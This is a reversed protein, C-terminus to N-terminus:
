EEIRLEATVIAHDSGANKAEEYLYSISEVRIAPTHYIFDYRCETRKRKNGRVHSIALPGTPRAATIRAFEDPRDQLYSRLADSLHHVRNAGLLLPEDKWWWTNSGLEPHDIKPANADIGVIVDGQLQALWNAISRM